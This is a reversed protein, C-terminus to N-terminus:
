MDKVPFTRGDGGSSAWPAFYLFMGTIQIGNKRSTAVFEDAWKWNWAGQKPQISEWSDFYRLWGVGADRLVPEFKPYDGSWEAGSAIGFPSPSEEAKLRVPAVTALFTLFISLCRSVRMRGM